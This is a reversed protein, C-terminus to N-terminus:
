AVGLRPQALREPEFQVWRGRGLAKAQYMALDAEHLVSAAAGRPARTAAGISAVAMAGTSTTDVEAIATARAIGLSVGVQVQQRDLAFPTALAAVVRQAVIRADEDHHVGDLVVAFEDGGLRAVTDCGRTASLLRAAVQVLLQDGAAHGMSDNVGKFGDLDLMLVAVRRPDDAAHARALAGDLCDLFRARNPLGTLADHYALQALAASAQEARAHARARIDEFVFLLISTCVVLGAHSGLTMQRSWADPYGIPFRVGLREAADFAVITLVCLITWTAAGRRGLLLVAFIPPTILWPTALSSLGGEYCALAVLVVYLLCTLLHGTIRLSPRVRLAALLIAAIGSGLGLIVAAARFGVVAHYFVAYAAAAVILVASLQVTLRARRLVADDARLAVPIFHDSWSYM